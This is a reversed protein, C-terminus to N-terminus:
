PVMSGIAVRIRRGVQCSRPLQIRISTLTRKYRMTLSSTKRGPGYAPMDLRGSLEPAWPTASDVVASFDRGVQCSSPIAYWDKGGYTRVADALKSDKDPTWHGARAM